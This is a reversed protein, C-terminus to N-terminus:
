TILSGKGSKRVVDVVHTAAPLNRDGIEFGRLRKKSQSTKRLLCFRERCGAVDPFRDAFIGTVCHRRARQAAFGRGIRKLCSLDLAFLRDPRPGSPNLSTM